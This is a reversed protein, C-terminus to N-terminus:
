SHFALFRVDYIKPVAESLQAHTEGWLPFSYPFKKPVASLSIGDRFRDLNKLVLAYTHCGHVPGHYGQLFNAPQVPHVILATFMAVHGAFGHVSMRQNAFLASEYQFKRGTIKGDQFPEESHLGTKSNRPMVKFDQANTRNALRLM